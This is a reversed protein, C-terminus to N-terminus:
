WWILGIAYGLSDMRKLAARQLSTNQPYEAKARFRKGFIREVAQDRNKSVGLIEFFDAFALIRSRAPLIERLGPYLLWSYCVFAEFAKDPFVKRFFTRALAFSDAVKQAELDAGKQIHVNVVPSGALLLSRLGDSYRFGSEEELVEDLYVMEFPQFQLVGLKFIKGYVLHRFWICDGKSLGIKGNKTYYLRQRLAIDGITDRYIEESVGLKLYNQRIKTLKWVLVALRSLPMLRCIPFDPNEGEYARSALVEMRGYNRQAFGRLEIRVDEDLALDDLNREYAAIKDKM